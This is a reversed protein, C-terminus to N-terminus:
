KSAGRLGSVRCLLSPIVSFGCLAVGFGCGPRLGVLFFFFSFLVALCLIEDMHIMAMRVCREEGLYLGVYHVERAEHSLFTAAAVDRPLASGVLGDSM